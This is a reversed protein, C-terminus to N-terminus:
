VSMPAVELGDETRTTIEAAPQGIELGVTLANLGHSLTPFHKFAHREADEPLIM